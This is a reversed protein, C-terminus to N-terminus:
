RRKSIRRRHGCDGNRDSMQKVLTDIAESLDDGGSGGRKLTYADIFLVGGM